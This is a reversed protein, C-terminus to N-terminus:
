APTNGDLIDAMMRFFQATQYADIEHACFGTYEAADEPGERRLEDAVGCLVYFAQEVNSSIANVMEGRSVSVDISFDTM